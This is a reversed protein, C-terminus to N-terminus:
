EHLCATRPRSDHLAVNLMCYACWLFGTPVCFFLLCEFYLPRSVSNDGANHKWPLLGKLKVALVCHIVAGVQQQAAQRHLGQPLGVDDLGQGDVQVEGAWVLVWAGKYGGWGTMKGVQTGYMGIHTCADHTYIYTSVDHM